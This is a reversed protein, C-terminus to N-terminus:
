NKVNSGVNSDDANDYTGWIGIAIHVFILLEFIIMMAKFERQINKSYKYFTNSMYATYTPILLGQICSTFKYINEATSM